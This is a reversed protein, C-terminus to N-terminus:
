RRAKIIINGTEDKLSKLSEMEKGQTLSCRGTKHLSLAFLLKGARSEGSAGSTGM